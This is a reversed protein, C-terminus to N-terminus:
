GRATGPAAPFGCGGPSRNSDPPRPTLSQGPEAEPKANMESVYGGWCGAEAARVAAGGGAAAAEGRGAEGECGNEDEDGVGGLSGASMGPHSQNGPSGQGRMWDSLKELAAPLLIAGGGAM